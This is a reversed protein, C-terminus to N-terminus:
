TGWQLKVNSRFAPVAGAQRGKQMGEELRENYLGGGMRGVAKAAVFPLMVLTASAPPRAPEAPTPLDPPVTSRKGQKCPQWRLQAVLLEQLSVEPQAPGASWSM